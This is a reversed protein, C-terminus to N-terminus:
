RYASCRTWTICRVVIMRRGYGTARDGSTPTTIEFPLVGHVCSRNFLIACSDRGRSWGRRFITRPLEIGTLKKM